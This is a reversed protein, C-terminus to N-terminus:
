RLSVKRITFPMVLWEVALALFSLNMRCMGLRTIIEPIWGDGDGDLVKGLDEDHRVEDVKERCNLNSGIGRGWSIEELSREGNEGM